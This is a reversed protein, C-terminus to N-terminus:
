DKLPPAYVRFAKINIPKSDDLIIELVHSTNELGQALTVAHDSAPDFKDVPGYSDAGMLYYKWKVEYNEDVKKLKLLERLLLKIDVPNIIVRKSKSIFIKRSDGDGDDGTVSGRIRYTFSNSEVDFNTIKLSWEEEIPNEGVTVRSIAPWQKSEQLGSPRTCAYIGSIESPKKGDILIKGM